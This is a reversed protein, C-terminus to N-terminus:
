RRLVTRQNRQRGALTIGRHINIPWKEDWGKSLRFNSEHGQIERMKRVTLLRNIITM